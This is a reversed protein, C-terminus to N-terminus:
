NKLNQRLEQKLLEAEKEKQTIQGLSTINKTIDELREAKLYISKIGFNKLGEELNLSYSSLIVLTPRLAVIKELSPNSFTGVSTLKSTKDEPYIQSHQLSAIGVIQEGANLMFLTEISAPDLVVLREKANLSILFLAMIMLIKKM